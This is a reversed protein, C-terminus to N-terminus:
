KQRSSDTRNQKKEHVSTSSRKESYNCEKKRASLREKDCATTITKQLRNLDPRQLAWIRMLEVQICVASLLLCSMLPQRAKPTGGFSYSSGPKLLVELLIVSFVSSLSDSLERWLQFLSPSRGRITM